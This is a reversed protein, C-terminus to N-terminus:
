SGVKVIKVTQYYEDDAANQIRDVDITAPFFYKPDYSIGVRFATDMEHLAQEFFGDITAWGDTPLDAGTAVRTVRTVINNRVEVRYPGNGLCFCGVDYVYDYSTMGLAHWKGQMLRLLGPSPATADHCGLLALAGLIQLSRRM